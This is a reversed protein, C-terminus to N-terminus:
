GATNGVVLMPDADLRRGVFHLSADCNPDCGTAATCAYSLSLTGEITEGEKDFTYTARSVRDTQTREAVFTTTKTDASSIIADGADIRVRANGLTYDIGGVQLYQRDDVGDWVVWQVVEVMNNTKDTSPTGSRYCTGPLNDLPSRDIAVRYYKPQEGCGMVGGAMVAAVAWLTSRLNM